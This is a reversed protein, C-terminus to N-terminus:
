PKRATRIDRWDVTQSNSNAMWGFSQRISQARVATQKAERKRGLKELVIAYDDLIRALDPHERGVVAEMEVVSQGLLREAVEKQGMEWKLAGLNRLMRARAQGAEALRIASELVDSAERMRKSDILITALDSMCSAEVAREEGALALAKHVMREAEPGDGRQFVAQGLYRWGRSSEPWLAVARRLSGEALRSEGLAMLTMGLNTLAIAQATPKGELQRVEKEFLTKAARFRGAAYEARGQADYDAVQAVVGGALLVIAMTWKM